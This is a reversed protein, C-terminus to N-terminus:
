VNIKVLKVACSERRNVKFQEISQIYFFDGFYDVFVPRSFDLDRIDKLDLLFLAEVIKTKDLVASLLKYNDRLARSFSLASGSVEYNITGPNFTSVQITADTEALVVVRPAFGAIEVNEKLTYAFGDFDYKEGTFVRGMPVTGGFTTLVPVPTFKSTFIVKESELNVNAVQLVGQGFNPPLLPDKDDGEFRYFNTQGFGSLSYRVLPEGSSLDLKRSWDLARAKNRIISDLRVTNVEKTGEDVQILVGELNAVTLLLDGVTPGEPLVTSARVNIPAGTLRRGLSKPVQNIIFELNEFRLYKLGYGPRNSRIRWGFRLTTLDSVAFTAANVDPSLVFNINEELVGTEPARYINFVGFFRDEFQVFREIVNLENGSEDYIVLGVWVRANTYRRPLNTIVKGTVSVEFRAESRDPVNPTYTFQGANADPGYLGSVDKIKDPFNIKEETDGTLQNYDIEHAYQALSDSLDAVAGRCLVALRRWTLTQLLEGKLTYGADQVAKELITKAWFSPQFFNFPQTEGEPDAHEFFGYDINPYVFGTSTERRAAVESITYLHDFESLDIDTLKVSGILKFFDTNGASVFLRYVSGADQITASGDVVLIGDIFHRFTNRTYPTNTLSTVIQCNEFVAKNINTKAIEFINSYSGKRSGLSEFSLAQFTIAIEADQTDLLVGNLYTESRM